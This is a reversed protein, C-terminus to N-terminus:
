WSGAMSDSSFRPDSTIANTNVFEMNNMTINKLQVLTSLTWRNDPEGGVHFDAGNDDVYIGYRKAATAIARAQATWDAPIVFDSKLRLLSGFPVGGPSPSGAGHRAPWVYSDTLVADRFNVGLAHRIEGADAEGARALLPIFPLGAANASTWQNPRMQLSRLDWSATAETYWQNGLKYSFYSEWLRCTSQDLVLLHHDGCRNPDNCVTPGRPTNPFPFRMSEVPVTNCSRALNFANGNGSGNGNAVACDSEHPYGREMSVGSSAFDFSVVPWQTTASTGDVINIPLGFYNAVDAANDTTGWDAEFRVDRGIMNIWGDSNPHAPFRSTDDIRTNFIATPPFM